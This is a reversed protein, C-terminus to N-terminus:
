HLASLCFICYLLVQIMCCQLTDQLVEWAPCHSKMIFLIRARGGGGYEGFRQAKQCKLDLNPGFTMTKHGYVLFEAFHLLM